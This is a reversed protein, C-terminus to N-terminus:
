PEITLVLQLKQHGIAMTHILRICDDECTEERALLVPFLFWM